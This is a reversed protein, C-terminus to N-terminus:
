PEGFFEAIQAATAAAADGGQYHTRYWLVTRELAEELTWRPRWGLAQRARSSDISLLRAEYPQAGDALVWPRAGPWHAALREVVWDVPRTDEAGPGFNWAADTTEPDDLLRRGLLLTGRVPELVHQWPRVAAPNRLVLAGGAAFARMADPILRDEAWDGGGFVNGARVTAVAVRRPGAFYSRRWATVAMESCAKSLGYPEAGGLADNERYAWAWERNEYVKDTTFAVVARVSPTRRVAELLNVTGMVNAAFTGVPDAFARRVLPQAALHVVLEPEARGLAAALGELDLVDQIREDMARGLGLIAAHSPETPPPLAVGTVQAGFAKLTACLWSGIFGTHGTVLM